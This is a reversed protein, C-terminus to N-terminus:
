LEGTVGYKELNFKAIEDTVIPEVQPYICGPGGYTIGPWFGPLDCYEECCRRTEKRIEEETADERDVVSDIGGMILMKGAAKECMMKINNNPLVGQCIDVGIEIMDDVLPELFTDSHHMVIVGQSHLYDYLKRYPEKFYKRWTDVSFFLGTKSGWDDHSVILDPHLNEVVLKMYNLRYECIADILEHMEEEVDEDVLNMLTDEFTMLMHLQEFIGTGMIVCSLYKERDIKAHNEQAVEWGESCRGILDPVKVYEKWNEIDKIVQNEPTVIPVAAPDSEEFRIYTGWVDYSYTGRIRNGRILKFCPDGGIPKFMAWNNNLCAPKGGEKLSELLIERQTM